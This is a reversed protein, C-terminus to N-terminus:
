LFFRMLFNQTAEDLKESLEPGILQLEAKGLAEALGPVSFAIAMALFLAAVALRALRSEIPRFLLSIKEPPEVAAPPPSDVPAHRAPAPTGRAAGDAARAPAELSERVRRITLSLLDVPPELAPMALVSRAALEIELSEERCEQCSALHARVSAARLPSLEDRLFALLDERAERCLLQSRGRSAADDARMAEASVTM